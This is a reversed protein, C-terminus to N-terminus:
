HRTNESNNQLAPREDNGSKLNRLKDLRNEMRNNFSASDLGLCVKDEYSLLHYKYNTTDPEAIM